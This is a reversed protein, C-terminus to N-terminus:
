AARISALELVIVSRHPSTISRSPPAHPLDFIQIQFVQEGRHMVQASARHAVHTEDVRCCTTGRDLANPSAAQGLGASLAAANSCEM